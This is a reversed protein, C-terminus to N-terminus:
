GEKQHGWHHSYLYICVCVCVSLYIDKIACLSSSTNDCYSIAFIEKENLSYNKNRYYSNVCLDSAACVPRGSFGTGDGDSDLWAEESVGQRRGRRRRGM